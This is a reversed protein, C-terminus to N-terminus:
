SPTARRRRLSFLGNLGVHRSCGPFRRLLLAAAQKPSHLVLYFCNGPFCCCLSYGNASSSVPLFSLSPDYMDKKVSARMAQVLNPPLVLDHALAENILPEGIDGTGLEFLSPPAVAVEEKVSVAPLVAATARSDPAPSNRPSPPISRDGEEYDTDSGQPTPPSPSTEEQSAQPSHVIEGSPEGGNQHEKKIPNHHNEMASDSSDCNDSEMRTKVHRDMDELMQAADKGKGGAMMQKAEMIM